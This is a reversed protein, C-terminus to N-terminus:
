NPKRYRSRMEAMGDTLAKWEEASMMSKMKFRLGLINSASKMRRVNMGDLIKLFEEPTAEYNANMTYLQKHFQRDGERSRKVEAIIEDLVGKVSGATNPDKVTKDILAAVEQTAREVAYGGKGHGHNAGPHHASCASFLVFSLICAIVMTITKMCREKNIPGQDKQRGLGAVTDWPNKLISSGEDCAARGQSGITWGEGRAKYWKGNKMVM